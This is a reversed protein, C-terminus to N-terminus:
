PQDAVIKAIAEELSPRLQRTVEAMEKIFTAAATRLPDSTTSMHDRETHHFQRGM